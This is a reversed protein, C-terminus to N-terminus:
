DGIGSAKRALLSLYATILSKQFSPHISAEGSTVM